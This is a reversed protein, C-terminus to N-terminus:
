SQINHRDDFYEKMVRAIRSVQQDTMDPHSGIYFGREMVTQANELDGHTRHHFKELAPHRALNGAIIPRTDILHKAMYKCLDDRCDERLIVTFGFWTHHAAQTPVTFMVDLSMLEKRLKDAVARRKVNFYELKNLQHIGFAGQVETPRVSYGVNCFMFRPDIEPYDKEVSKDYLHRTWGHARLARLLDATQDNDTVIMGGEITTIHHSFFFSYSGIEGITGVKQHNYASGLSECADEILLLGYEDAINKLADMDAANGLIHAVFIARTKDTIAERVQDVDICLTDINSDVLVPTCGTQIVPWLTTGWTLAPVIVEDGFNLRGEYDPNTIASMILLNATSGSNVMIAHKSGVYEAFMREFQDVKSGMTVNRRILSEIAECIEDEDFTPASM